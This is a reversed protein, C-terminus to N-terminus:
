KEASVKQLAEKALFKIASLIDYQPDELEAATFWRIERHEDHALQVQDSKARAFYELSVHYHKNKIPHIDLYAPALLFKTSSNELHPKEGIIEIELGCEEQVERFLAQEPDEDLEIHGGIPLWTQQGKHFVLLIREKYVIWAGVVFDIKEHLHAM